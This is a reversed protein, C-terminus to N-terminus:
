CIVRMMGYVLCAKQEKKKTRDKGEKQKSKIQMPMLSRSFQWAAPTGFPKNYEKKSADHFIRNSFFLFFSLSFLLLLLLSLTFLLFYFTWVSNKVTRRRESLRLFIAHLSHQKQWAQTFNSVGIRFHISTFFKM